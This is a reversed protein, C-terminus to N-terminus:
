GRLVQGSRADRITSPADAGGTDGDVLGDIAALVQPDLADRTYPAPAGSRNASTSVLASGFADCLAAAVPHATVRVALTDHRGRLWRPTEPPCPMLWTNPGPWSAKVAAMREVPLAFWDIWPDLQAVTAAILILGQAPDRRKAALLRLVAAENRPDCGLGFVAETPYALVAGRTLAAVAADLGLPAPADDPVSDRTTM